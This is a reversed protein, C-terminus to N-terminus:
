SIITMFPIFSVGTSRFEKRVRLVAQVDWQRALVLRLALTM